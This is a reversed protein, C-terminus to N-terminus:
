PESIEFPIGDLADDKTTARLKGRVGKAPKEQRFAFGINKLEEMDNELSDSIFCFHHIGNGKEKVYEALMGSEGYPQLIEFGIGNFHIMATKVKMQKNDKIAPMPKKLIKSFQELVKEINNVAIGIHGLKKLM